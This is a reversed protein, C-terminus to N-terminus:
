PLDGARSLQTLGAVLADFVVRCRADSRLDEHMVVWIGLEIAVEQALVRQLQPDRAAIPVQCIGIGFGARIAAHQALNSDSRLAMAAREFQPMGKVMARLAPTEQDFGILDHAALDAATQPVGRRELYDRRAHLGLMVPPLRRAVLAEQVPEVNRVAVDADRRLLDDVHNSVVLEVALGPHQQRLQTLIPPLHEVSIIESASIRVSGRVEGVTGSAKRILAQAAAALAQAQPELERALDTAILGRQSRLFLEVGLAQELADLHRALTPQTLGLRRAAGSLSGEQLIALFSRFLNWDPEINM